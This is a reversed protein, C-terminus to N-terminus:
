SSQGGQPLPNETPQSSPGEIGFLIRPTANFKVKALEETEEDGSALSGFQVEKLPIRDDKLVVGYEYEKVFEEMTKM